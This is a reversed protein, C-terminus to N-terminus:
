ARGGTSLRPSGRKGEKNEEQRACFWFDSVIAIRNRSLLDRLPVRLGSDHEALM